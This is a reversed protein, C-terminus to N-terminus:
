YILFTHIVTNLVLSLAIHVFLFLIYPCIDLLILLTVPFINLCQHLIHKSWNSLISPGAPDQLSMVEGIILGKTAPGPLGLPRALTIFTVDM